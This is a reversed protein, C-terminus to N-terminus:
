GKDTELVSFSPWIVHFHYTPAQSESVGSSTRSNSLFRIPLSSSDLLHNSPFHRSYMAACGASVDQLANRLDRRPKPQTWAQWSGSACTPVCDGARRDQNQHEAANM